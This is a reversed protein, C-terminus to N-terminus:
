RTLSGSRSDQVAKDWWTRPLEVQKWPHWEADALWVLPPGSPAKPLTKFESVTLQRLLEAVPAPREVYTTGIQPSRVAFLTSFGAIYDAQSSSRYFRKDPINQWLRSGHDGHVIVISNAGASSQALSRLLQDTKKLTCRIQDYYAEEREQTPIPLIRRDWDNVRLVRCNQDVVSPVHPLLLHIFYAEGPKARKLDDSLRDMMALSALSNTWSLRELVPYIPEPPYLVGILPRSQTDIVRLVPSLALLKYLLLQARDASSLPGDAMALVTSYQTCFNPNAGHCFDLYGENQYLRIAYGHERLTRFYRTPGASVSHKPDKQHPPMGGFNLIQPISNATFYFESYARGFMAFGRSAYFNRLDAKMKGAAASEDSFGEFGTHEDFIVHLIAPGPPRRAPATSGTAAVTTQILPRKEGVGVLALGLMVAGMIAAFPLLSTRKWMLFCFSAVFAATTLWISSLNFDAVVAVLLAELVASSWRSGPVYLAAMVGCLVLLAAYFYVVEPRLLPYSNYNLFNVFTFGLLTFGAAFAVPFRERWGSDEALNKM